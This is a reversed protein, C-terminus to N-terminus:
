DAPGQNTGMTAQRRGPWEGNVALADAVAVRGPPEHTGLAM